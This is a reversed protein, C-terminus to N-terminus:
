ICVLLYRIHNKPCPTLACSWKHWSLSVKFLCQEIIWWQLSLLFDLLLCCISKQCCGLTNQLISVSSSLLLDNRRISGCLFMRTGHHCQCGMVCQSLYHHAPRLPLHLDTGEGWDCPNVYIVYRMGQIDKCIYLHTPYRYMWWAIATTGPTRTVSRVDSVNPKIDPIHMHLSCLSKRIKTKREWSSLLVTSKFNSYKCELDWASGDKLGRIQTPFFFLSFLFQWIWFSNPSRYSSALYAGTQIM